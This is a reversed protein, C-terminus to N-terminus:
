IASATVVMKHGITVMMVSTVKYTGGCSTQNDTTCVMEVTSLADIRRGNTVGLVRSLLQLRATQGTVVTQLSSITWMGMM